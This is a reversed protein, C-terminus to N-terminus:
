ATFLTTLENETPEKHVKNLFTQSHVTSTSETSLEKNMTKKLTKRSTFDIDRARKYDGKKLPGPLMWYAREETVTESKLVKVSAEIHFLVANVWVLWVIAIPLCYRAM